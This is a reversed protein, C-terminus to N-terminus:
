VITLVGANSWVDGSSLGASSTPINSINLRRVTAKTTSVALNLVNNILIQFSSTVTDYHWYDNSLTTYRPYKTGDVNTCNFYFRSLGKITHAALDTGFDSGTFDLGIKSKGSGYYHANVAKSGTSQSAYGAWFVGLDGTENTRNLNNVTGVCAVDYGNDSMAVEYPNLYVGANAPAIDGAFLGAAPNALFSTALAKAGTVLATANFAICDGQGFQAMQVRFHSVATRGGNGDTANNHGSSNFTYGYYAYAEPTYRYGSTPQGLTASGTVRHEVVHPTKFVGNFATTISAQNGTTPASGVAIFIKGRKNGDSTKLQGPGELVKSISTAGLTSSYYTGDALYLTTAAGALAQTIYTADDATGNGVAGYALPGTLLAANWDSPQCINPDETDGYPITKAHRIYM